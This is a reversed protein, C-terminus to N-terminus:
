LLGNIDNINWVFQNIIRRVIATKAVSIIYKSIDLAIVLLLNGRNNERLM